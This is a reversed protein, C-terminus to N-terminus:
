HLNQESGLYGMSIEEIQLNDIIKKGGEGFVLLKSVKEYDKKNGIDKSIPVYKNYNPNALHTNMVENGKEFGSTSREEAWNGILTKAAYTNKHM